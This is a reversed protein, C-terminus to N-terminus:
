QCLGKASEAGQQVALHGAIGVVIFEGAETRDLGGHSRTEHAGALHTPGSDGDDKGKEKRKPVNETRASPMTIRYLM